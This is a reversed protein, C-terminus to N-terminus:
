NRPNSLHSTSPNSRSPLVFSLITPADLNSLTRSTCKPNPIQPLNNPLVFGCPVSLDRRRILASGVSRLTSLRSDPLFTKDASPIDLMQCPSVILSSRASPIYPQRMADVCSFPFNLLDSSRNTPDRKHALRDTHPPPPPFSPFNPERARARARPLPNSPLYTIYFLICPRHQSSTQMEQTAPHQHPPTTCLSAFSPTKPSHAYKALLTRRKM